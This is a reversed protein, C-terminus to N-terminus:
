GGGLFVNGAGFPASPAGSGTPFRRNVGEVPDVVSATPKRRTKL